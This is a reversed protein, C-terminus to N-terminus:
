LSMKLHFLEEKNGFAAYLSPKNIGLTEIIEAMSTGDYGRTWFLKMAKELAEDKDFVRPRGRAKKLETTM